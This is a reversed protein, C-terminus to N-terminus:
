YTGEIISESSPKTTELKLKKKYNYFIEKSGLELGDSSKRLRSVAKRNAVLWIGSM